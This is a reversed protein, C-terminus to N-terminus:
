ANKSDRGTHPAHISISTGADGGQHRCVTAGRIPRTSQFQTHHGSQRIICRRAGYPARPNFYRNGKRGKVEQGTAGRIPRTSQFRGWSTGCPSPTWDRGTHPAHISIQEGPPDLMLTDSITAGRIPRTSQFRGGRFGHQRVHTTAGRIPRTSQFKMTTRTTGLIDKTAGRIPRTSQFTWM